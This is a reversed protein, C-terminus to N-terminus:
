VSRSCVAEEPFVGKLFREQFRTTRKGLVVVTVDGPLEAAAVAERGAHVLRGDAAAQGVVPQQGQAPGLDLPAALRAAALPADGDGAVVLGVGGGGGLPWAAAVWPVSAM